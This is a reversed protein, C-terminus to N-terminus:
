CEHLSICTTRPGCTREKDDALSQEVAIVEKRLNMAEQARREREEELEGMAQNRENELVQLM